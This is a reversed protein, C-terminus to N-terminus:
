AAWPAISELFFTMSALKRRRALSAVTRASKVSHFQAGLQKM